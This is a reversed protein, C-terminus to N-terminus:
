SSFVDHDMFYCNFVVAVEGMKKKSALEAEALNIRRLLRPIIQRARTCMPPNIWVFHKCDSGKYTAYRRGPNNDTRSTVMVTRKGCTCYEDLTVESMQRFPRSQGENQSDSPRFDSLTVFRPDSVYERLMSVQFVNHVSSVDITGFALKQDKQDDKEVAIVRSRVIRCMAHSKSVVMTTLKNRYALIECKFSKAYLKEKENKLFVKDGIEFQM